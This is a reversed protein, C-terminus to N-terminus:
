RRGKYFKFALLGIAVAAVIKGTKSTAFGMLKSMLSPQFAAADPRSVPAVAPPPPASAVPPAITQKAYDLASGFSTQASAPLLGGVAGAGALGLQTYQQNAVDPGKLTHTQTGFSDATATSDSQSAGM